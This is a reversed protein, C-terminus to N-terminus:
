PFDEYLGERGIADDSLPTCAPGVYEEFLDALQDSLREFESDHRIDSAQRRVWADVAPNLAEVLLRRVADLNGQAAEERIAREVEPPIELTITM